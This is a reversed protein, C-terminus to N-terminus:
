NAKTYNGEIKYTVPITMGGAEMAMKMESYKVMCSPRFLQMKGDVKGSVANSGKSEISGKLSINIHEDTASELTYKVRLRMKQGNSSRDLDAEWSDGVKISNEPFEIAQQSLQDSFSSIMPTMEPRDAFEAKLDTLLTMKGKSSMSTQMDLNMIPRIMADMRAGIAGHESADSDYDVEGMNIRMRDYNLAMNYSDNVKEQVTMEVGIMMAMNMNSSAMEMEVTMHYIDGEQMDIVLDVEERKSCSVLCM